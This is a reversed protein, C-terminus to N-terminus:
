RYLAPPQHLPRKKVNKKYQQELIAKQREGGARGVDRGQKWGGKNNDMHGKFNNRYVRQGKGRNDGGRDGRTVTLRNEIEIDKAISQESTQKISKTGSIPSIM